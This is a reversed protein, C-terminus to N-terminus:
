RSRHRRTARIPSVYISEGRLKSFFRKTALISSMSLDIILPPDSRRARRVTQLNEPRSLVPATVPTVSSSSLPPLEANTTLRRTSAKGLSVQVTSVKVPVSTIGVSAKGDTFPGEFHSSPVPFLSSKGKPAKSFQNRLSPLRSQRPKKAQVAINTPKVALASRTSTEESGKAGSERTCSASPVSVASVTPALTKGTLSTPLPQNEKSNDKRLPKAEINRPTACAPMVGREVLRRAVEPHIKLRQSDKAGQGAAELSVRAATESALSLKLASVEAECAYLKKTMELRLSEIATQQRQREASVNILEALLNGRFIEYEKENSKVRAALTKAKARDDSAQSYLDAILTQQGGVMAALSAVQASLATGGFCPASSVISAVPPPRVDGIGEGAIVPSGPHTGTSIIAAVAQNQLDQSM